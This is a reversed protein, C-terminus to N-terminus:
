GQEDAVQANWATMFDDTWVANAVDQVRQPQDTLDHGPCLVYRRASKAVVASDKIIKTVEKVLVLGRENVEVSDVVVQESLAM